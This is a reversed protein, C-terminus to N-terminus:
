QCVRRMRCATTKFYERELKSVRIEWCSKHSFILWKIIQCLSMFYPLFKWCYLGIETFELFDIELFDVIGSYNINKREVLALNEVAWIFVLLAEKEIM